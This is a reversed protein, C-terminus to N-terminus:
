FFFLKTFLHIGRLLPWAMGTSLLGIVASIAAFPL